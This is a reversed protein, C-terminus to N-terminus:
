DGVPLDGLDNCCGSEVELDAVERLLRRGGWLGFSYKLGPVLGLRFRGDRDTQTTPVGDYRGRVAVTVGSVPAGGKDVLRGLVAGCPELRVALPEAEDGRVTVVKSLGKERHHFFLERPRGPSLGGVTFSAGALTEMDPGSSLGGARVGSLPEGDPGVVTGRAGRAPEVTLDLTLPGTGEDPKILSLANYRDVYCRSQQRGASVHLCSSDGHSKGDGFLDALEKDDLRAGAYWDRPSAAVLVVGPGPLVALSYSGDPRVRASSPALWDTCNPLAASHPNPALPYYVVV